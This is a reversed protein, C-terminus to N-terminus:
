AGLLEGFSAIAALSWLRGESLISELVVAVSSLVSVFVRSNRERWLQWSVLLVLSDFSARLHDPLCARSTPWWDQLWSGRLPSLAAWGPSSLVRLWVQHAFVCDLLIHNATELEQAYFPCASHSDIGRM